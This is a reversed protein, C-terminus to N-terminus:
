ASFRELGALQKAIEDAYLASEIEKLMRQEHESLPM